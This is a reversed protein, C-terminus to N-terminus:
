QIASTLSCSYGLYASQYRVTATDPRVVLPRSVMSSRDALPVCQYHRAITIVTTDMAVAGNLAIWYNRSSCQYQSNGGFWQHGTVPSRHSTVPSQHITSPPHHRHNAITVTITTPHHRHNTVTTPLRLRHCHSITAPSLSQHHFRRVSHYRRSNRDIIAAFAQQRQVILPRLLPELQQDPPSHVVTLATVLSARSNTLQPLSQLSGSQCRASYQLSTVACYHTPHITVRSYPVRM